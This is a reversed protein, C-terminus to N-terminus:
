FTYGLQLLFEVITQRAIHPAHLYLIKGFLSGELQKNFLFTAALTGFQGSNGHSRVHLKKLGMFQYAYTIDFRIGEWPSAVLDAGLMFGKWVIRIPNDQYWSYGALPTLAVLYNRGPTLTAQYGLLGYAQYALANNAAVGYGINALLYLDRQITFFTLETQWLSIAEHDKFTDQRYGSGIQLTPAITTTAFASYAVLLPFFIKPM